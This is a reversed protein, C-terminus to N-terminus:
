SNIFDLKRNRMKVNYYTAYLSGLITPTFWAWYGPLLDNVVLFATVAAIYGGSMKNIHLKLRETKLHAPNQYLKIDLVGILIGIAGFIALIINLKGNLIVPIGIMLFCNFLLIYALLKDIYLNHNPNTFKLCRKGMIVSYISFVGIGFLFPNFHAPIVAIILSILISIVMSHHFIAGMRKHIKSGKVSIAAILGVALAVSGFLAHSYILIKAWNM